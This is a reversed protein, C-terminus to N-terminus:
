NSNLAIWSLKIPSLTKWKELVKDTEAHDFVPPSDLVQQFQQAICTCLTSPKALGKDLGFRKIEAEVLSRQEKDEPLWARDHMIYNLMNKFAQPDIDFFARGDQDRM